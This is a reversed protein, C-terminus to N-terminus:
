NANKTDKIIKQIDPGEVWKEVWDRPDGWPQKWYDLWNPPEFLRKYQEQDAGTLIWIGIGFKLSWVPWILKQANTFSYKGEVKVDIWRAGYHYHIAYLDPFGSQYANGHTLFVGWGLGKLMSTIAKRVKKESNSRRYGM